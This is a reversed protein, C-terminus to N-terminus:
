AGDSDRDVRIRELRTLNDGAMRRFPRSGLNEDALQIGVSLPELERMRVTVWGREDSGDGTVAYLAVYLEAEISFATDPLPQPPGWFMLMRHAPSPPIDRAIALLPEALEDAWEDTWMNDAAARHGAPH